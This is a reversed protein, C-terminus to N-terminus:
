EGDAKSFAAITAYKRAIYKKSLFNLISNRFLLGFIGLVVFTLMAYHSSIYKEVLLYIIIPLAIRMLGYIFLKMNFNNNNEFAKVKQNLKIPNTNYMGGFLTMPINVGINFVAM